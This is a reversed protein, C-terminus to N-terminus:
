HNIKKTFKILIGAKGFSSEYGWFRNDLTIGYDKLRLITQDESQGSFTAHVTSHEYDISIGIIRSLMWEPNIDLEEPSIIFIM